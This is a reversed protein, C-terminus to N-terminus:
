TRIFGKRDLVEVALSFLTLATVIAMTQHLRKKVRGATDPNGSFPLPFPDFPLGYRNALRQIHLLHIVPIRREAMRFILGRRSATAMPVRALLGSGLHLAQRCYGLAVSAGGVNIFVAPKEGALAKDYLRIRQKIDEELAGRKGEALYPIRNRRIAEMGSEIGTGDLGGRTEAIGGLSAAMSRFPFLGTDNLVKEMDLWTIEPDNAGYMSAGVSSIIVPRAEMVRIAALVAINLAPFSGSFCIAVKDGGKVGAKYLMDVLVGAFLPQTSTRKSPLSGLTTTLDTYEHGILGTQNPDTKPDIAHGLTLRKDKIAKCARIMLDVAEKKKGILLTNEVALSKEEMYFAAVCVLVALLALLSFRLKGKVTYGTHDQMKKFTGFLKDM